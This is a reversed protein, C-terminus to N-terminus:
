PGDRRSVLELATISAEETESESILSVLHLATLIESFLRRSRTKQSFTLWNKSADDDQSPSQAVVRAQDHANPTKRFREVCYTLESFQPALIRYGNQNDRYHKPLNMKKHNSHNGRPFYVIPTSHASTM